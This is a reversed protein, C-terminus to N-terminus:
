WRFGFTVPLYDTHYTGVFIRNYRAEGFFRGHWKSGFAIGIGGDVGPKNVSYSAVVVNVPVAAPYFGFFPNFGTGLAVGPQTFNQYQHYIGGGGTLYVDVHSKPMLHVVPNLTASFIDLNGGGYGLNSLVSSTVGMSNYGLDINAGVWPNFNM